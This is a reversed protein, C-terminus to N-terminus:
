RFGVTQQNVMEQKLETNDGLAALQWVTQERADIILVLKNNVEDTRLKENVTEL